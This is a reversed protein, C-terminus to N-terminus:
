SLVEEMLMRHEVGFREDVYEASGKTGPDVESRSPIYNGWYDRKPETGLMILGTDIYSMAERGIAGELLWAQGTNVLYQFTAIRTDDNDENWLDFLNIRSTM